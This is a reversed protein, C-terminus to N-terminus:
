GAPATPRKCVATLLKEGVSSPIVSVSHIQDPALEASHILEHEATYHASAKLSMTKNRCNFLYLARTYGIGDIDILGSADSNVKVVWAKVYEKHRKLTGVNVFIGQERGDKTSHHVYQLDDIIIPEALALPTLCLVCTLVHLASLKM